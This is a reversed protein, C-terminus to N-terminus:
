WVPIRGARNKAPYAFVVLLGKMGKHGKGCYESCAIEFTGPRSAVFEVNVPEGGRPVEKKVKLKKIEFGHTGDASQVILRVTDGETVEIRAPDFAFRRATVNFEKLTGPAAEQRGAAGVAHWAIACAMLVLTFFGAPEDLRRM